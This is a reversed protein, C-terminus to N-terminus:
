EIEGQGEKLNYVICGLCDWYFQDLDFNEEIYLGSDFDEMSINVMSLLMNVINHTHYEISVPLGLLYDTCKRSTLWPSAEYCEVRIVDTKLKEMTNIYEEDQLVENMYKELESYLKRRNKQTLVHKRKM